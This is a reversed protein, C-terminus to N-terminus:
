KGKMEKKACKKCLVLGSFDSPVYVWKGCDACGQTGMEEETEKKM